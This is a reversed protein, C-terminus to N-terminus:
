MQVMLVAGHCGNGGAVIRLKVMTGVDFKPVATTHFVDRAATTRTRPLLKFVENEGKRENLAGFPVATNRIPSRNAVRPVLREPENVSSTRTGMVICDFQVLPNGTREPATRM